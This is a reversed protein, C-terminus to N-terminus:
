GASGAELSQVYQLLADVQGDVIMEIPTRMSFDRLPQQNFWSLVRTEDPNIKMAEELVAIADRVFDSSAPTQLERTTRDTPIGSLALLRPDNRFVVRAFVSSDVSDSTQASDLLTRLSEDSM